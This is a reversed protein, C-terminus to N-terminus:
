NIMNDEPKYQKDMDPIIAGVIEVPYNHAATQINTIISSLKETWRPVVITVARRDFKIFGCFPPNVTDRM